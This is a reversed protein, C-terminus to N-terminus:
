SHGIRMHHGIDSIPACWAHHSSKCANNMIALASGAGGANVSPENSGSNFKSQQPGRMLSTAMFVGKNITRAITTTPPVIGGYQEKRAEGM